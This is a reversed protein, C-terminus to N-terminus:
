IIRKWSAGDWEWTDGLDSNDPSGRRGGFLVIRKRASDYVMGADSRPPPGSVVRQTWNSGNWEWTQGLPTGGNAGGFM